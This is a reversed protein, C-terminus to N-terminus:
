QTPKEIDGGYQYLIKRTTKDSTIGRFYCNKIHIDDVNYFSGLLVPEDSGKPNFCDYKYVNFINDKKTVCYPFHWETEYKDDAQPPYYTKLCEGTTCHWLKATKDKSGTLCYEGDPSYAVSDISSNSNCDLVKLTTCTEFDWIRATGYSSGTLLNKGDPSFAASIIHGRVIAIWCILLVFRM